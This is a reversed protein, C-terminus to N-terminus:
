HKTGVAMGQGTALVDLGEPLADRLSVVRLGRLVVRVAERGMGERCEAGLVIGRAVGSRLPISEGVLRSVGSASSLTAPPNVAVLHVGEISPGLRPALSGASGVLVVYGGPGTLGLLAAVSMADPLAPAPPTPAPPPGLTLTAIGDVIPFERRCTPCGVTGRVIHRDEMRDPTVVCYTEDHDGPCRLYEALEIFM